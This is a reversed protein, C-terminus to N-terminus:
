RIEMQGKDLLRWGTGSREVTAPSVIYVDGAAPNACTYYLKYHTSYDQGRQLRPTPLVIGSGLEDDSGIFMFQAPQTSSRIFLNEPFHAEVGCKRSENIQSLYDSVLSPFNPETAFPPPPLPPPPEFVPRPEIVAPQREPERTQRAVAIQKRLEQVDRNTNAELSALSLQAQKLNRALAEIPERYAHLGVELDTVRHRFYLITLVLVTAVLGALMLAAAVAVDKWTWTSSTAENVITDSQADLEKLKTERLSDLAGATTASAAAHKFQEVADRLKEVEPGLEPRRSKEVAEVAKRLAQDAHETLGTKIKSLEDGVIPAPKLQEILKAARSAYDRAKTSLHIEVILANTDETLKSLKQKLEPDNSKNATELAQRLQAILRDKQSKWDDPTDTAHPRKNPSQKSALALPAVAAPVLCVFIILVTKM